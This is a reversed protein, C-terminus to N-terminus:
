IEEEDCEHCDLKKLMDIIKFIDEQKENVCESQSNEEICFCAPALFM